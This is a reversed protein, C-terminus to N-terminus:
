ELYGCGRFLSHMLQSTFTFGVFAEIVDGDGPGGDMEAYRRLSSKLVSFGKEIPNFDPSYAPLYILRCGKEEVLSEIRGGHHFSANDLIIVSRPGPFPNMYPLLFRELFFEFDFRIVNEQQVMVVVLGSLAVAPIINFKHTARDRVVRPTREGVPAWGKTRAIGDLCIGSEDTFVLMEPDYHALLSVYAAREDPDQRPNVKRICKRSHNLRLHLENAITSASININREEALSDQIEALYITPKSKVLDSIFARESEDLAMPRGRTLYTSPDCVVSKTREYLDSWRRLSDPSVASAHMENIEDLSKGEIAERVVVYKFSAEYKQYVMDAITKSPQHWHRQRNL